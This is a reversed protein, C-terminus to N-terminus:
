VHARGIKTAETVMGDRFTLDDLRTNFLVKGGQARIYERMNKVVTKLNDSGIHPKSLYLIEQPAGFRVFIKLVEKNLPSHTQTNLKGDSFTGAGGEGFQINTQTDLFRTTFFANIKEEREEVSGGREIVIPTIGHDLLRIACFLGAPGSGVVLVTSKPQKQAPLKAFTPKEQPQPKDACEITYIYRINNKDRADLSKKKIAFYGVKGGCKKEALKVLEKEDKGIPLKIDSLTQVSM